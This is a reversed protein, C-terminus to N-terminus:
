DQIPQGVVPTTASSTLETIAINDRDEGATKVKVVTIGPPTELTIKEWDTNQFDSIIVLERKGTTTSLQSLALRIASGINSEEMHVQARLLQDSLFELNPGPQPFISDPIADIWIINAQDIGGRDLLESAKQCAQSFRHDASGSDKASMSASRDIVFITTKDSGVLEKQSTLLPQLFAIVIALVALTRLLLILWDQPKKFRATKQVIKHLFATNSFAYKPPNNRSFLHVLIPVAVLTSLWLWTSNVLFFHM